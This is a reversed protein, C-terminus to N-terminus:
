FGRGIRESEAARFETEQSLKVYSEDLKNRPSHGMWFDILGDSLGHKKLYTNRYRRFAHFGYDRPIESEELRKHLLRLCHVYSRPEAFIFGGSRDGIFERLEDAAASCLDVQRRGARSKPSSIVTNWKNQEVTLVRGAFHRIELALLEGIRLGSSSALSCLANLSPDPGAILQRIQDATFCPTKSNEVEPADIFEANWKRPFLQEGTQPDIASGVVIKAVNLRDSITRPGVGTFQPVLDKLVKNNIDALPVRGIRENLWRVHGAFCAITSPKAPRKRRTQLNTLWWESQEAFTM